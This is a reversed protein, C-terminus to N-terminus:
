NHKKNMKLKRFGGGFEGIYVKIKKKIGDKTQLYQPSRLAKAYTLSWNPYKGYYNLAVGTGSM